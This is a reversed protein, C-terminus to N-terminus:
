ELELLYWEIAEVDLNARRGIAEPAYHAALYDLIIPENAGLQGLNQTKQMWRIMQEWGDRTARNQTILQASHCATCTGRVIEFGEAYVLGTAVHLGNEVREAPDPARTGGGAGPRYVAVVPEPAPAFWAALSDGLLLQIMALIVVVVFANLLGILLNFNSQNPLM